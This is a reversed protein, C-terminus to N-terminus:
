FYKRQKSTILGLVSFDNGGFFSNKTSTKIVYAKMPLYFLDESFSSLFSSSKNIIHIDKVHHNNLTVELLRTHMASDQAAYRIKVNGSDEGSLIHTTDVAYKGILSTKNIDSALFLAFERRWDTWDMQHEDTQGNISSTKMVVLSDKELRSIQEDFFSILDFYPKQVSAQQTPNQCSALLIFIICPTLRLIYSSKINEM